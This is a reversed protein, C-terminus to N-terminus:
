TKLCSVLLCFIRFQISASIGRIYETSLKSSENSDNSNSDKIQLLKLSKTETHTYHNKIERLLHWQMFLSDGFLVTPIHPLDALWLFNKGFM